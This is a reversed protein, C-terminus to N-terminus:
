QMSYFDMPGSSMRRNSSSKPSRNAVTEGRVAEQDVEVLVHGRTGIV